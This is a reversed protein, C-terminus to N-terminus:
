KGYDLAVALFGGNAICNEIEDQKSGEGNSKADTLRLNFESVQMEKSVDGKRPQRRLIEPQNRPENGM